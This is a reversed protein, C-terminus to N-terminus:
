KWLLNPPQKAVCKKQFPGVPLWLRHKLTAKGGSESGEDRWRSWSAFAARLSVKEIPPALDDNNWWWWQIWFLKKCICDCFLSFMVAFVLFKPIYVAKYHEILASLIKKGSKFSVWLLYCGGPTWVQWADGHYGGWLEHQHSQGKWFGGLCSVGQSVFLFLPRYFMLLM